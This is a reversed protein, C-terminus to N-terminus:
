VRDSSNVREFSGRGMNFSGTLTDVRGPAEIPPDKRNPNLVIEFEIKKVAEVTIVVDYSASLKKDLRDSLPAIEGPPFGDPVRVILLQKM